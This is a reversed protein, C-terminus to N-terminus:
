LEFKVSKNYDQNEARSGYSTSFKIKLCKLSFRTGGM